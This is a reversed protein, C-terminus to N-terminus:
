VEQQDAKYFSLVEPAKDLLTELGETNISQEKAWPVYWRRDYMAIAAIAEDLLEVAENSHLHPMFCNIASSLVSVGTMMEQVISSVIQEERPVGGVFAAVTLTGDGKRGRKATRAQLGAFSAHDGLQTFSSYLPDFKNKGLKERVAGPSLEHVIKKTDSGSWVAVWQPQERFLRIFDLHEYAMRIHAYAQTSFHHRSLHYATLLEDVCWYHLVVLTFYTGQHTHRTADFMVDLIKQIVGYFAAESDTIVPGDDKPFDVLHRALQKATFHNGRYQGVIRAAARKGKGDPLRNLGEAFANVFGDTIRDAYAQAEPTMQERNAIFFSGIKQFKEGCQSHDHHAEVLREEVFLKVEDLQVPCRETEPLHFRKIFNSQEGDYRV